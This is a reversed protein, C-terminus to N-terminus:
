NAELADLHGMEILALVRDQAAIRVGLSDGAGLTLTPEDMVGMSAPPTWASCGGLITALLALTALRVTSRAKTAM